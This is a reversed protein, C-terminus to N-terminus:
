EQFLSIVIKHQSSFSNQCQYSTRLIDWHCIQCSSRQFICRCWYHFMYDQQCIRGTNGQNSQYHSSEAYTDAKKGKNKFCDLNLQMFERRTSLSISSLDSILVENYKILLDQLKSCKMQVIMFVIFKRTLPSSCVVPYDM